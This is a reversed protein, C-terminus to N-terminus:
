HNMQSLVFMSRRLLLYRSLSLETCLAEEQETPPTFLRFHHWLLVFSLQQFLFVYVYVAFGGQLSFLIKGAFKERCPFGNTIFVPKKRYLFTRLSFGTKMVPLTQLTNM